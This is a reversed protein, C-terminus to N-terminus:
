TRPEGVPPQGPWLGQLQGKAGTETAQMAQMRKDWEVFDKPVQDPPVKSLTQRNQLIGVMMDPDSQADRWLVLQEERTLKV